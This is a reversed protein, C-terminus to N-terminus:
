ATVHVVISGVLRRGDRVLIKWLGPGSFLVEGAYGRIPATIPAYPWLTAILDGKRRLLSAPAPRPLGPPDSADFFWFRLPLGDSCRFGRLTLPRPLRHPAYIV